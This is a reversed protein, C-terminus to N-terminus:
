SSPLCVEANAAPDLVCVYGTRCDGVSSCEKVCFGWDGERKQGCGSGEPCGQKSVSCWTSCHGGPADPHCVLGACQSARTCPDGVKGGPGAPENCVGTLRNCTGTHPCDADGQCFPVCFSGAPPDTLISFTGSTLPGCVFGARCDSPQQCLPFCTATQPNGSELEVCGLGAPCAGDIDCIRVCMGGPLGARNETACTEGFDCDDNCGCGKGATPSSDKGLCGPAASDSGADNGGEGSSGSSGASSTGASGGSGTGAQGDAPERKKHSSSCAGALVAAWLVGLFFSPPWRRRSSELPLM